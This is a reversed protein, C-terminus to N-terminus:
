AREKARRRAETLARDLEDTGFPKRAYAVDRSDALGGDARGTIVLLPLSPRLRRIEDIRRGLPPGPMLEDMICVEYDRAEVAALLADADAVETVEYGSRELSASLVLRILADDDAILVTGM